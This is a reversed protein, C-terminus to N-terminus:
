AARRRGTRASPPRGDSGPRADRRRDRDRRGVGILVDGVSFINAMPLWAPMAFLDTLPGLVVGDVIAATSTARARDRARHRWSRMAASRCTAATPASRWSTPPAASSSSRCAPSRATRGSPRWSPWTPPSTSSRRACARPRRRRRDLLAAAPRDDRGRDAAGVLLASRRPARGLRRQRARHRAGRPGRLPHVRRWPRRPGCTRPRM